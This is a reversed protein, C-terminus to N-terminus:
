QHQLYISYLRNTALYSERHYIALLRHLSAWPSLYSNPKWIVQGRCISAASLSVTNCTQYVVLLSNSWLYMVCELRLPLYEM